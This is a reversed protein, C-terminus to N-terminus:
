GARMPQQLQPKINSCISIRALSELFIVKQVFFRFTTAESLHRLSEYFLIYLMYLSQTIVQLQGGATVDTMSISTEFLCPTVQDYRLM